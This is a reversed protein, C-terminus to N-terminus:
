AVELWATGPRGAEDGRNGRLALVSRTEGGIDKRVLVRGRGEDTAALLGLERLRKHLTNKGVALPEGQDLARFRGSADEGAELTATAVFAATGTFRLPM